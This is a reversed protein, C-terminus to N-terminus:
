LVIRIAQGTSLDLSLSIKKGGNVKLACTNPGVTGQNNAILIFDTTGTPVTFTYTTGANTLTHNQLLVNSGQYLTIIDGDESGDDWLTFQVTSSSVSITEKVTYNGNTTVVQTCKGSLKVQATKSPNGQENETHFTLICNDFNNAETTNAFTFKFRFTIKKSSYNPSVLSDTAIIMTQQYSVNSMSSNSTNYFVPDLLIKNLCKAEGDYSFTVDYIATLPTGTCSPDIVRNSSANSIKFDKCASEVIQVDVSKSLCSNLLVVAIVILIKSFHFKM